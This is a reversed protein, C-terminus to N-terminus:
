LVKVATKVQQEHTHIPVGGAAMASRAFAELLPRTDIINFSDSLIGRATGGVERVLTKHRKDTHSFSENLMHALLEAQWQPGARLSRGLQTNIHLSGRALAQEFAHEHLGVTLGGAGLATRLVPRDNVMDVDFTIGATPLVNDRRTTYEVDLHELFRPLDARGKAILGDITAQARAQAEAAAPGYERLDHHFLTQM